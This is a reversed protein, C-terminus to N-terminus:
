SKAILYTGTGVLLGGALKPAHRTAPASSFREVISRAALAYMTKVGGVTVVTITVISTVDTTSLAAVDFLSPFLSAYFLIAKLDGLTLAMGALLSAVLSSPAAQEGLDNLKTKSRLLSCGLWILYGGGIYKLVSFFGGMTEALVSMGFLVLAVFILDGVVIGAAVAIGNQVGSTAARTVVLAVSASPLAALGLMVLFFTLVAVMDM